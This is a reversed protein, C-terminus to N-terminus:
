KNQIGNKIEKKDKIKIVCREPRHPAYKKLMAKMKNQIEEKDKYIIGVKVPQLIHKFQKTEPKNKATIEPTRNVLGCKYVDGHLKLMDKGRDIGVERYAKRNGTLDKSKGKKEYNMCCVQIAPVGMQALKLKYEIDDEFGGQFIEPVRKLDLAFLSYCYREALFYKDPVGIGELNCGAMGANTNKLVTVLMDIYDNMIGQKKAEGANQQKYRRTIGNKKYMYHLILTEINDDLQVLYRYGHEKAYKIAYSRNMPAQWGKDSQKVNKIYWERYEDPVNVIEWDTEYGESNNSIICKSYDIKFSETPRATKDGHDKELFKM